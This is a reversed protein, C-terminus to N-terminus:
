FYLIYFNYFTVFPLVRNIVHLGYIKLRYISFNSATEYIVYLLLPLCVSQHTILRDTKGLLHCPM